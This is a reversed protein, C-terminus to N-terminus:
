KSKNEKIWKFTKEQDFRIGRGVKEYPLGERRWRDITTRSIKLIQSLEELTIYKTDM